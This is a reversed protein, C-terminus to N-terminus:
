VHSICSLVRSHIRITLRCKSLTSDMESSCKKMHRVPDIGDCIPLRVAMVNRLRVSLERVLDIGDCIPLMVAMDNRSRKALERVPDIGDSIPLRVAM